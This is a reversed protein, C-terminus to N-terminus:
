CAESAIVLMRLAILTRVFHFLSVFYERERERRRRERKRQTSAALFGM